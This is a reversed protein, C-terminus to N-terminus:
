TPVPLQHFLYIECICHLFWSDPARIIYLIHVDQMMKCQQLFAFDKKTDINYNSVDGTWCKLSQSILHARCLWWYSVSDNLTHCDTHKCACSLKILAMTRSHKAVPCSCNDSHVHRRTFRNNPQLMDYGPVIPPATGMEVLPLLAVPLGRWTVLLLLCLRCHCELFINETALQRNVEPGYQGRPQIRVGGSASTWVVYSLM